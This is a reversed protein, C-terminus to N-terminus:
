RYRAMDIGYRELKGYLDQRRISTLRSALSVNGRPEEIACSVYEM